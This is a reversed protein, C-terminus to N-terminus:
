GERLVKRAKHNRQAIRLLKVSMLLTIIGEIM